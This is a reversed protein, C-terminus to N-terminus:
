QVVLLRRQDTLWVSVCVCLSCLASSLPPTLLRTFDRTHRRHPQTCPDAPASSGIKEADSLERGDVRLLARVCRLCLCPCHSLPRTLTHSHTHTRRQSTRGRAIIETLLGAVGFQIATIPAISTANVFTGRYMIAPNFSIPRGQQLANKWSVTPQNVCVEITGSMGGILACVWGPLPPPAVGPSPSSSSSSSSPSSSM